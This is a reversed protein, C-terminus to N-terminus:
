GLGMIPSRSRLSNDVDCRPKHETLIEDGRAGAVAHAVRVGRVEGPLVLPEEVRRRHAVHFPQPFGCPFPRGILRNPGTVLRSSEECADPQEGQGESTADQGRYFRLPTLVLSHVAIETRLFRPTFPRSAGKTPGPTGCSRSPEPRGPWRRGGERAGAVSFARSTRVSASPM